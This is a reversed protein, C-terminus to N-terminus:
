QDLDIQKRKLSIDILIHSLTDWTNSRKKVDFRNLTKKEKHKVVYFVLFVGVMNPIFFRLMVQAMISLMSLSLLLSPFLIMLIKTNRELKITLQGKM